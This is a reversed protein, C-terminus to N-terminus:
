LNPETVDKGAVIVRRVNIDDDFIVLDADKGAEIVGKNLGMIAAPTATMMKVAESM